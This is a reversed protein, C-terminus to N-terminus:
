SDGEGEGELEMAVGEEEVPGGDRAGVKAEEASMPSGGAGETAAAGPPDSGTGEAGAAAAAAAGAEGGEAPPQPPAKQAACEPCLWETGDPPQLMVYHETTHSVAQIHTHTHLM